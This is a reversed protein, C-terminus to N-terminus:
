KKKTWLLRMGNPCVPEYGAARLEAESPANKSYEWLQAFAKAARDLPERQIAVFEEQMKNTIEVALDHLSLLTTPRGVDIGELRIMVLKVFLTKKNKVNM